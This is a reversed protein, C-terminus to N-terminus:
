GDQNIVNVEAQQEEEPQEWQWYGEEEGDVHGACIKGKGKGKGKGRGGQEKTKSKSEQPAGRSEVLSALVRFDKETTRRKKAQARLTQASERLTGQVKVLTIHVEEAVGKRAKADPVCWHM